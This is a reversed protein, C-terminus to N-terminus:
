PSPGRGGRGPGSVSRAGLARAWEEPVCHGVGALVELEVGFGAALSRGVEVPVLRDAAGWVVRVPARVRRLVEVEFRYRAVERLGEVVVAGFHENRASEAYVDVHPEALATVTGWLGRLYAELAPRTRAVAAIWPGSFPALPSALWLQLELPVGQVPVSALTLEVLADPNQAALELAVLGGFSHGVLRFRDVGRRALEDRLARAIASPELSAWRGSRGCGPLDPVIVRAGGFVRRDFVRGSAGLGHLLVVPVGQGEDVVFLTM